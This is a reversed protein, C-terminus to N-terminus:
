SWNKPIGLRVKYLAEMCALFAGHGYRPIPARDMFELDMNCAIVPLHKEPIAQPLHDPKGDTRLLDLILQLASEWRRPEGM